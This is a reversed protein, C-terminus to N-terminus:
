ELKEVWHSSQYELLMISLMAVDADALIIYHFNIGVHVIVVSQNQTKAM